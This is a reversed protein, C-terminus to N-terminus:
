GLKVITKGFGGEQPTSFYYDKVNRNDKLFRHIGRQLVGEGLGHVVSFEALGSVIAQDLQKELRHLAEELRLGRLDLQYAPAASLLEESVALGEPGGSSARPAERLQRPSFSARLNETAVVWRDNKGKRVITGREGSSRIVVEMGVSLSQEEGRALEEQRCNLDAEGSRALAEM